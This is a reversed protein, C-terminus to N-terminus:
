VMRQWALALLLVANMVMLVPAAATVRRSWHRGASHGAVGIMMLIPATGLGFAVMAAAGMVPRGSGAAAAVAAYLFGCPLFGLTLGLLYEGAASGRRIRRTILGILGSWITPARGFGRGLAEVLFIVAAVVLLAAPLAGFSVVQGFGAALGGIGAYTTLRGLHYPVLLGANVRQRECMREAGVRVMRESVQGLVFVGCMPGCHVVSGAVGAVFLGLLLGSGCLIGIWRLSEM